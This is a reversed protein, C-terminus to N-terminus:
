TERNINKNCLSMEMLLATAEEQIGKLKNYYNEFMEDVCCILLLSATKKFHEVLLVIM